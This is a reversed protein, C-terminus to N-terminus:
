IGFSKARQYRQNQIKVGESHSSRSVNFKCDMYENKNKSIKFGKSKLAERLIELKAYCWAVYDQIHRTLDDM